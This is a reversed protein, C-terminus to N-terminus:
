NSKLMKWDANTVFDRFSLKTAQFKSYACKTLYYNLGTKQILFFIGEQGGLPDQGEKRSKYKEFNKQLNHFEWLLFTFTKFYSNFVFKSITIYINKNKDGSPGGRSKRWGIQCTIM